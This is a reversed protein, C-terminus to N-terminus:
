RKNEFDIAVHGLKFQIDIIRRGNSDEIVRIRGTNVIFVNNTVIWIGEEQGDM